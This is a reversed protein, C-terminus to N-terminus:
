QQKNRNRSFLSTTIATIIGTFIVLIFVIAIDSFEVKVPYSDINMANHNGGLKIIEGYQQILCLIIGIIIGIIGGIISILWGELIFIQNILQPTAGLATFTYTNDQKEIILMSMTSIINFSAIILIFVLLLFTIWKEVEIMRFSQEQQQIRNKITYDPGLLDTIESITQGSNETNITKIEIATAQTTYDLLKRANKLPIFIVNNDYEMQELQFVAGVMLTDAKFASMPNATNIRGKRRPTYINLTQYYGPHANLEVATGISMTAYNFISDEIPYNGDIIIDSLSTIDNYNNPIGKIKVPMQQPGYMALAQEEITPVAYKINPIENLISILSDANEIVKGNTSTIKIEPDLRSLYSEALGYFGNFVSLVCVIAMTAVAVGAVSIISIVNVASHTKKSFLYRLAIKLKFKM